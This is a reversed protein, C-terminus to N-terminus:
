AAHLLVDQHGAHNEGTECHRDIKIEIPTGPFCRSLIDQWYIYKRLVMDDCFALSQAGGCHTHPMLIMKVPNKIDFMAKVATLIVLEGIILGNEPTITKILRNIREHIEKDIPASMEFTQEDGKILSKACLDPFLLGGPMRIANNINGRVVDPKRSRGDSCYILLVNKRTPMTLGEVYIKGAFLRHKCTVIISRKNKDVLPSLCLNLLVVRFHLTKLNFIPPLIEIPIFWSPLPTM